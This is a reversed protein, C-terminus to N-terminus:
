RSGPPLSLESPRSNLHVRNIAAEALKLQQLIWEFRPPEGLIMDRMATYDREILRRLEPQPVPRVSGPVAEEFRKWAQRFAILNHNRVSDLLGVDRLAAKGMDTSAIMAVDYYHRSIRDRDAPARRSDRFGCHLGHLVLLKEWLTREPAIARVNKVKFSWDTLERAVYPTISCTVSPDLASRAGAEVKVRPAVYAVGALAYLTPYEVLITQRDIDSEDPRVTCGHGVRNMLEALAMRMEGLVHHSCTAKLQKFLDNRKRNSLDRAITPDHPGQFGLDGRYVVIDIDESFRRILSFAKSLSTGGKFLLRPHGDPLRNYLADLVLCVWFDKEAYSPLTDLRDAVADFLDRKDQQPLALFAEFAGSM